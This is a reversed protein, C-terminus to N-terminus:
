ISTNLKDPLAGGTKDLQKGEPRLRKLTQWIIFHTSHTKNRAELMKVVCCLRFVSLCSPFIFQSALVCWIDKYQNIEMTIFKWHSQYSCSRSCNIVLSFKFPGLQSGDPLNRYSKHTINVQVALCSSQNMPEHKDKVNPSYQLHYRPPTSNSYLACFEPVWMHLM